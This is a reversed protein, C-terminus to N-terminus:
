QSFFVNVCFCSNNHSSNGLTKTMKETSSAVLQLWAKETPDLSSPAVKDTKSGVNEETGTIVVFYFNNLNRMIENKKKQKNKEDSAICYTESLSIGLCKLNYQCYGFCQM